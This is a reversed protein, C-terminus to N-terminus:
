EKRVNGALNNIERSGYFDHIITKFVEEILNRMQTNLSEADLWFGPLTYIWTEIRAHKALEYLSGSYGRILEPHYSNITKIYEDMDEPTM